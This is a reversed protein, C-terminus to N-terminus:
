HSGPSAEINHTYNGNHKYYHTEVQYGPNRNGHYNVKNYNGEGSVCEM